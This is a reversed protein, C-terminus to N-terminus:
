YPLLTLITFYISLKTILTILYLCASIDVCLRSFKTGYKELNVIPRFCHLAVTSSVVSTHLKSLMVEESSM